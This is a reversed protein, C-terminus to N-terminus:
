WGRDADRPKKHRDPGFPDYEHRHHQKHHDIPDDNVDHPSCYRFVNGHGIISVNYSYAITQVMPNRPDSADVTELVKAVTIKLRRDRLIVYGDFVYQGNAGSVFELGDDEVLGGDVFRRTVTNHIELYSLLRNPGHSASRDM